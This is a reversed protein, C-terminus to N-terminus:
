TGVLSLYTARRQPSLALVEAETWGYATALAHVDAVLAVARAEIEAWLLVSVDLARTTGAGCGPCGVVIEIAGAPAASEMAADVVDAVADPVEGAAAEVCRTLLLHRAPGPEMGRLSLLDATTPLRFAVETGDVTASLRAGPQHVPLRAIAAVDVPVDLPDGCAGCEARAWVLGGATSELLGALLVDRSGVDVAANEEATGGRVAGLLTLAREVPVERTGREWIALLPLPGIEPM